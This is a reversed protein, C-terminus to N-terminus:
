YLYVSNVYFLNFTICHILLVAYKYLRDDENWGDVKAEDM